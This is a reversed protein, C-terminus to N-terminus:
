RSIRGAGPPVRYHNACQPQEGLVDARMRQITNQVTIRAGNEYCDVAQAVGGLDQRLELGDETLGEIFPPFVAQASRRSWAGALDNWLMDLCTVCYGLSPPPNRNM